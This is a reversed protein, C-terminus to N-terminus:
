KKWKNIPHHKLNVKKGLMLKGHLDGGKKKELKHVMPQNGKM